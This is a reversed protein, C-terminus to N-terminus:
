SILMLLAKIGEFVERAECLLPVRVVIAETNLPLLKRLWDAVAKSDKDGQIYYVLVGTVEHIAEPGEDLANKLHISSIRYLKEGFVIDVPEKNVSNGDRAAELPNLFLRALGLLDVRSEGTLGLSYNKRPAAFKLLPESTSVGEVGLLECFYRNLLNMRELIFKETRNGFLKKPPFKPLAANRFMKSIRQHTVLLESYRTSKNFESKCLPHLFRTRGHVKVLFKVSCGKRYFRTIQLSHIIPPEM